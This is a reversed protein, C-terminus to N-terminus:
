KEKSLLIVLINRLLSALGQLVFLFIGLPIAAKLPYIPPAWVSNSKEGILFASWAEQTSFILLTVLTLFVLTSTIVDMIAQTRRPLMGFVIDVRVHMNHYYDYAGGFLVILAFLQINVDWAWITPSNFMYRAVFEIFTIIMLPILLFSILRGTKDSLFDIRTLCKNLKDM